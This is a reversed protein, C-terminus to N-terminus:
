EVQSSDVKMSWKNSNLSRIILDIISLIYEEDIEGDADSAKCAVECLSSIQGAAVELHKFRGDSELMKLAKILLASQFGSYFCTKALRCKERDLGRETVYSKIRKYADISCRFYESLSSQDIYGTPISSMRKLAEARGMALFIDNVDLFCTYLTSRAVGANQAIEKASPLSGPSVEMCEQLSQLIRDSAQGGKNIAM